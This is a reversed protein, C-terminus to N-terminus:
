EDFDLLRNNHKQEAMIIKIRIGKAISNQMLNYMKSATPMRDMAADITNGFDSVQKIEEWSARLSDMTTSHSYRDIQRFIQYAEDRSEIHQQLNM